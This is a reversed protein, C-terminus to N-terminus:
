PAARPGAERQGDPVSAPAIIDHDSSTKEASLLFRTLIRSCVPIAEADIVEFGHTKQTPICFVSTQPKLGAAISASADSAFDELVALQPTVGEATCADRLRDILRPSYLGKQDGFSLIPASSLVTDYEAAVPGVELAVMQDGPVSHAAFKAGGNTVEEKTSCVYYVDRRLESRRGRVERMTMIGALVLARDDMFHGGILSGVDVVHREVVSLVVRTGPHVGAHELEERSRGTIVFVEEWKPGQQRLAAMEPSKNTRHLSGLSLVGTFTEGDGLIDVACQGFSMPRDGGLNTVTLTGDPQIHKVMMAIEDMHSVIQVPDEVVEDCRIVSILNGAADQWVEDCVPELASRCVERVELEDGSPGRARILKELLKRDDPALGGQRM